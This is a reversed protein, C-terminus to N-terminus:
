RVWVKRIETGQNIILFIFIELSQMSDCWQFIRPRFHFIALHRVIYIVCCANLAWINVVNASLAVPMDKWIRKSAEVVPLAGLFPGLPWSLKQMSKKRAWEWGQVSGQQIEEARNWRSSRNSKVEDKRRERHSLVKNKGWRNKRRKQKRERRRRMFTSPM